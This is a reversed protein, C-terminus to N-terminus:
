DCKSWACEPCIVCGAQYVLEHGCEPCRDAAGEGDKIYRKLTRAVTKAFSNMSEEENKRLQSVVFKPSAGHRLLMSLLRTMTGYLPNNFTSVIDNIELQDDGEGISLNYKHKGKTITGARYKKPLLIHKAEGAFIEYPKGEHIGVLVTFREEEVTTQYIDCSLTEPRKPADHQPFSVKEAIVNKRSGDVYVTIGKLGKQWAEGYIQKVINAGTGKPLNITSSISHDIYKQATSQILLRKKWDIDKITSFFDPLEKGEPNLKMWEQVNKHVVEYEKWKDGSDDVFDIKDRSEDLVKKRRLSRNWLVPEIGASTQALLSITGTPAVAMLGINRRGSKMRELLELPFDTYFDCNKETDWDFMEFNGREQGLVCSTSYTTDRLAKNIKETLVISEDSGYKMQLSAFVDALGLFGIGVRRSLSLKSCIMTWLHNEDEEDSIELLSMIKELELEVLDDALRTAESVVNKFLDFDFCASPTFPDLAFSKLNISLLICSGFDPLVLESCPNTCSTKFTSYKDSPLQNCITDWFLIGPEGTKTASDVILDWLERARIIRKIKAEGTVPWRLEFDTDNQVALMFDNTIKVSINAGTIQNKDNKMTVFNFIDPHRVNMALLLAGRRGHQGIKRSIYSYFDGFSWAGTSTLAANNVDAGDPRLNSIDLGCGGRRKYINACNKGADFISSISDEPGEVVFCNSISSNSYPNGVGFMPSGAPIVYTFDQLLNLIIDESLPNPYKAEIRAFERALRRHMDHPTKELLNTKKDKLAYKSIWADTALTDGEFYELTAAYVDEYKM